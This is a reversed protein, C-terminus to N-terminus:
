LGLESLTTLIREPDVQERAREYESRNWIELKELNGSVLVEKDLRAYDRQASPILIRGFKDMPADVASSVYFRRYDRVQKNAQSMEAIRALHAQWESAPYVDLCTSGFSNVIVLTEEKAKKLSERFLSPIAVRGKEDLTHLHWGSFLYM